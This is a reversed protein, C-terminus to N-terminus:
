VNLKESNIFAQFDCINDCAFKMLCQKRRYIFRKITINNQHKAFMQIIELLEKYNPVEGYKSKLVYAAPNIKEDFGYTYMQSEMKDKINQRESARKQSENM